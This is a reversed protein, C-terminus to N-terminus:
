ELNKGTALPLGGRFDTNSLATFETLVSTGRANYARVTPPGEVGFTTVLDDTGDQDIDGAALFAGSGSIDSFAFFGSNVDTEGNFKYYRVHQSGTAPVTAIEGRDDGDFDGIAVHVGLSGDYPFWGPHHISEGRHNFPRVHSGHGGEVGTIIEDKSSSNINGVAPYVGNRVAGTYAFWGPGHEAVGQHDFIRVHPGANSRVGTVIEGKADSDINGAAVFVGSKVHADYPVFTPVIQTGSRDFVKVEPTCGPGSGAVIDNVGNNDIDGVAVNVGCSSNADFAMFRRVLTGDARFVSVEPSHGSGAGVVIYDAEYFRLKEITSDSSTNGIDDKTTVKYFYRTDDQASTDIYSTSTARGLYSYDGDRASSRYVRHFDINREDSTWSVQVGTPVNELEVNKPRSVQRDFYYHFTIATDTVNGATDKTKIRLYYHKNNADDLTPAQYTNATQFTGATLPDATSRTGFYVYYGKIGSQDDTAGTWRFYPSKERTRDDEDVRTTRNANTYAKISTPNTPADSDGSALAFAGAVDLRGYGYTNDQGASGLDVATATLTSEVEDADVGYALLLAAAGAVHPAAMSTGRYGVTAFSTYNGAVNYTQQFVASSGNGGPAVLDINGGPAVLDIGTGKNSYSAIEDSAGTAGVAIVDDYRAPYAINSAGDNGTSAVLVVDAAAAADVATELAQSDADAGLSLNIVEAGNAVAYDIGEAIDWLWGYGEDNLVKIPMITTNFAMGAVGTNNNTSQAITGTVHTGHGNDDSPQSDNNVIDTGTAFNTSALDPAQAYSGSDTYAVGTDIVAVVISSDGGYKPTDTDYDWADTMGVLDFNWQTTADYDNPTYHARFPINPEAFEVDNDNAFSELVEKLDVDENFTVQVFQSLPSEARESLRRMSAANTKKAVRALGAEDFRTSVKQLKQVRTNSMKIVISKTDSGEPIVTGASSYAPLLLAALIAAGFFLMINKMRNIM